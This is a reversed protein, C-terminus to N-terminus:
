HSCHNEEEYIIKMNSKDKSLSITIDPALNLKNRYKTIVKRYQLPNKRTSDKNESRLVAHAGCFLM